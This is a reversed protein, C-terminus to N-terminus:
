IVAPHVTKTRALNGWSKALVVQAQVAPMPRALLFGQAQPCRFARLMDLQSQTEVGEAIVDVKLESGLSVIAQVTSATRRHQTMSHILSKHLKLRDVAMRSLYNLSSYNATRHSVAIRVGLQKWQRLCQEVGPSNAIIPGEGIELELRNAPFRSSRLTDALTRSYHGCIERDAVNVSLTLRDAGPGRWRLATACATKLVWADLAELNGSREAIPVFLDPALSRGSALTWRVLAEAGCGRGGPLEYQPQFHV